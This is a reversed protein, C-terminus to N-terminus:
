GSPPTSKGRLRHCAMLALAGLCYPDLVLPLLIWLWPWPIAIGMGALAPLSFFVTLSGVVGPMFGMGSPVPEGEKARLSRRLVQWNVLLGGLFYLWGMSLLVLGVLTGGSM